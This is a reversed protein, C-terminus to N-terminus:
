LLSIVFIALLELAVVSGLLEKFGAAGAKKTTTTAPTPATSTGTSKTTSSSSSSETSAKTTTASTGTGTTTPPHTLPVTTSPFGIGNPGISLTKGDVVITTGTSGPPFSYTKGGIVVEGPGVSFAIGAVTMAMPMSAALGPPLPITTGGFNIGNPGVTVVKGDPLTISTPTAINLTQGNIVITGDPNISYTIGNVAGSWPSSPGMPSPITVGGIQVLGSAGIVLTQGGPLNVSTPQSVPYTVGSIVIGGPTISYPVGNIQGQQPANSGPNGNGNGNGNNSPTSGFLSAILAGIGPSSGSNENQPASNGNQPAPNPPAPGQPSPNDQSSGPFLNGIAQAIGAKLANDVIQDPTQQNQPSPNPAQQQPSPAPIPNDPSGAPSPGPIPNDDFKITPAPDPPAEEKHGGMVPQQDAPQPKYSVKTKTVAEGGTSERGQLSIARAELWESLANRKLKARIASSLTSTCFVPEPADVVITKYVLTDGDDITNSSGSLDDPLDWWTMCTGNKIWSTQPPPPSNFILSDNAVRVHSWDISYYHNALIWDAIKSPVSDFDFNPARTITTFVGGQAGSTTNTM